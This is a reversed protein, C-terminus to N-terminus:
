RPRSHVNKARFQDLESNRWDGDRADLEVGGHLPRSPAGAAFTRHVEM